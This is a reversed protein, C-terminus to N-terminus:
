KPGIVHRVFLQLVTVFVGLSIGLAWMRGQVNAAASELLEIRHAMSVNALEYSERNVFTSAQERLQDRVKNSAVRQEDAIGKALDLAVRAGEVQMNVKQELAYVRLELHEKLSVIAFDPYPREPSL